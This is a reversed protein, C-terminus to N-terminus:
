ASTLVDNLFNNAALVKEEFGDLSDYTRGVLSQGAAQVAEIVRALDYAAWPDLTGSGHTILSAVAQWLRQWHVEDFIRQNFLSLFGNAAEAEFFLIDAAEESDMDHDFM